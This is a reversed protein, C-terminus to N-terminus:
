GIELPMTSLGFRWAPKGYGSGHGVGIGSPSEVLVM